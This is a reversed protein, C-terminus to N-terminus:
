HSGLWARVEALDEHASLKEYAAAASRASLRARARDRPQPWLAQALYFQLQARRVEEGPKDSLLALGRELPGRVDGGLRGDLRAAACLLLPQAVSPHAPGHAKELVARARDAVDLSEAFRGAARLCAALGCLVEGVEPHEAGYVRENNALAQRFLALAEDYRALGQLLIAQNQLAAAATPHDPGLAAEFTRRAEEVLLLADSARGLANYSGALNMKAIAVDPHARGLDGEFLALSRKFVAIAEENRGLGSLINGLSDLVQATTLNRGPDRETLALAARLEQEAEPLRSAIYLLHALRMRRVADLAEDHVRETAAQAFRALELGEASKGLHYGVLLSLEVLARARLADMGSVDALRVAERYHPEAGAPNASLALAEGQLFVAEALFPAHGLQRADEVLPGSLEVTEKPKGSRLTAVTAALRKRLERLRLPDSPPPGKALRDAKTCLSPPALGSVASAARAATKADARELLQVMARTEELRDSLCEMKRDLLEESQDGVVHTAECIDRWTQTWEQARANLRLDVQRWADSAYPVKTALLAAEVAGKARADWTGGWRADGEQCRPPPRTLAYAGGVALAVSAAALLPGRWRRLPERGLEALLADMSAFRAAPDFALGRKLAARVRRSTGKLPALSAGERIRELRGDTAPFPPAGALTEYLAVCFSFLDARADVAVGLLQEPAMYAPTGAIVGRLSQPSAPEGDPTTCAPTGAIVGLLSQPSAPAGDPATYSPAGASAARLSQPRAPAGVQAMHSPAGASAGPLPPSDPQLALGFDTVRVRGDSGVLVNAPKFDRHVLGAAHVAALGRGAALFLQMVRRRSPREALTVVLTTGEVLEMAVFTRGDHEGAEYVPVVNPHAVQALAKAERATSREASRLLKLAVSRDLSPDYAKYVVGMGGAGLRHLLVFRGVTAGARLATSEAENSTIAVSPSTIPVLRSGAAVALLERCADCAELHSAVQARLPPPMRGQLHDLVANADLCEM